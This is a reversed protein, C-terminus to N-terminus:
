GGRKAGRRVGLGVENVEPIRAHQRHEVEVGHAHGHPEPERGARRDRAARDERALVVEIRVQRLAVLDALVLQRHHLRAPEVHQELVARRLADADGAGVELLVRALRQVLIEVPKRADVEVARSRRQELDDRLGVHARRLFGHRVHLLDVRQHAVELDAVAVHLFAREAAVRVDGHPRLALLLEARAGLDLVEIREAEDLARDVVLDLALDLQDLAAALDHLFRAQVVRIAALRARHARLFLRVVVAIERIRVQQREHDVVRHDLRDPRRQRLQRVLLGRAEDRIM